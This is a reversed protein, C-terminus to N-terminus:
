SVLVTHNILIIATIPNLIYKLPPPYYIFILFTNEWFYVGLTFVNQFCIYNAGCPNQRGELGRRAHSGHPNESFTVRTEHYLERKGWAATSLLDAGSPLAKQQDQHGTGKPGLWMLATVTGRGAVLLERGQPRRDRGADRAKRPPQVGPRETQFHEGRM